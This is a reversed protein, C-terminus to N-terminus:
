PEPLPRKPMLYEPERGSVPNRYHFWMHGVKPFPPYTDGLGPADFKIGAIAGLPPDLLKGTGEPIRTWGHRYDLTYLLHDLDVRRFRWVGDEVAVDDEYSGTMLMGSEYKGPPMKEPGILFQFLRTREMASRGDAAITIVPQARIHMSTFGRKPNYGGYRSRSISAIKAPGRIFGGGASDRLGDATFIAGLDEWRGDDLYQGYAGALNEIADHAAAAWLAAQAEALTGSRSGARGQQEFAWGEPLPAAGPIDPALEAPPAAEAIWSRGWGLAHNTRMKTATRMQSYRWAGERKVLLNDFRVLSWFAPGDNNGVMGLDFGRARATKGDPAIDVIVNIQIHDNLEGYRLGAPGDRELARRIGATGTYAGIGAISLSGSADFLDAVDDWMRRDVYYGYINQLRLIASEDALARVRGSLKALGPAAAGAPAPVSAGLVASKGIQAASKFHYPLMPLEPAAGRWGTEYPGLLFPQYHQRAIRWGAATRAYEIEYIGGAWDAAADLGGTMGIGHWRGWAVKGDDSLTVIPGM